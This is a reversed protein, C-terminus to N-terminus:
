RQDPRRRSAFWPRAHKMKFRQDPPAKRRCTSMEESNKLAGWRIEICDNPNYAMELSEQREIVDKLSLKWSSGDSREYAIELKRLAEDRTTELQKLLTQESTDPPISYQKRNRAVQKPFTMVDDIALFVRMDRAPTSYIEWPGETQFIAAGNPMAMQRWNNEKMYAVGLAVAEVRELMAKHLIAIKNHLVMIPDVPIPNLIHGVTDYFADKSKLKAQSNSWPSFGRDTLEQNSLFRFEDGDRVVPRFMKFGDTPVRYNFVFTGVGFQKHTVTRDPHADVGYVAGLRSDTQPEVQSVLIVHGGADVYVAGPRISELTLDIPYVDGTDSSPVTRGNGSHVKWGVHTSVFANFRSIPESVGDFRKTSGSHM